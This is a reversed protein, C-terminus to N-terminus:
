LGNDEEMKNIDEESYLLLERECDPCIAIDSKEYWKDHDMCFFHTELSELM